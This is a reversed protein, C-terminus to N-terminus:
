QAAVLAMAAPNQYERWVFRRPVGPPAFPIEVVGDDALVGRRKGGLAVRSSQEREEGVDDLARRAGACHDVKEGGTARVHADFALDRAKFFSEFGEKRSGLLCPSDASVHSEIFDDCQEGGGAM